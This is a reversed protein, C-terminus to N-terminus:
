PLNGRLWGRSFRQALQWQATGEGKLVVPDSLPIGYLAFGRMLARALDDGGNFNIDLPTLSEGEPLPEVPPSLLADLFPSAIIRPFPPLLSSDPLVLVISRRNFSQIYLGNIEPARSGGGTFIRTNENLDLYQGPGDPTMTIIGQDLAMNRAAIFSSQVDGGNLGTSATNSPSGQFIGTDSPTGEGLSPPDEPYFSGKGERDVSFLGLDFRQAIRGEQLFEYGRHSGYGMGGNAGNVGASRGYLDLIRGEIIFVRNGSIGEQMMGRIALVLEPIGWSNAEPASSRWNQVWGMPEYDPWGHVLDGGLVGALPLGRWLFDLYANRYAESIATREGESLAFSRDRSDRTFIGVGQPVELSPFAEPLFVLEVSLLNNLIGGSGYGAFSQQDEELSGAYPDAPDRSDLGACSFVFLFAAPLLINPIFSTRRVRGSGKSRGLFYSYKMAM